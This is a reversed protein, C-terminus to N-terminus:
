LAKMFKACQTKSMGTHKQFYAMLYGKEKDSYLKDAMKYLKSKNNRIDFDADGRLSENEYSEPQYDEVISHWEVQKQKIAEQKQSENNQYDKILKDM